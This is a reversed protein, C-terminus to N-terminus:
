KQVEMMEEDDGPGQLGPLERQSVVQEAEIDVITKMFMPNGKFYLYAKGFRKPPAPLPAGALEAELYPM